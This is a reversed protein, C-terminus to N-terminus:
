GLMVQEQRRLEQRERLLERLERKLNAIDKWASTGEHRKEAELRAIESELSSRRKTDGITVVSSGYPAAAFLCEKQACLEKDITELLSDRLAERAEIEEEIQQISEEVIRVKAALFSDALGRSLSTSGQNIGHSTHASSVTSSVNESERSNSNLYLPQVYYKTSQM